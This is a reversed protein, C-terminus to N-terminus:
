AMKQKLILPIVWPNHLHMHDFACMKGLILLYAEFGM